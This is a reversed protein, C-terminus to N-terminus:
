NLGICTLRMIPLLSGARSAWRGMAVVVQHIAAGLRLIAAAINATAASLHPIAAYRPPTAATM